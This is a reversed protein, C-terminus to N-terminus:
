PKKPPPTAGGLLALIAAIILQIVDPNEMIWNIFDQWTKVNAPLDPLDISVQQGPLDIPTQTGSPM